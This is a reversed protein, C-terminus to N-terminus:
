WALHHSCTFHIGASFFTCIFIKQCALQIFIHGFGHKDDLADCNLSSTRDSIVDKGSLLFEEVKAIVPFLCSWRELDIYGDLFDVALHHHKGQHM